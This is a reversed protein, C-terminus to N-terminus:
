QFTFIVDRELGGLFHSVEVKEDVQEGFRVAAVLDVLCGDVECLVNGEGGCLAAVFLACGVALREGFGDAVAAREHAHALPHVVDLLERLAGVRALDEGGGVAEDLVHADRRVETVDEAVIHLVQDLVLEDARRQGAEAEVVLAHHALRLQELEPAVEERDDQVNHLDALGDLGLLGNLIKVNRQHLVHRVKQHQQVRHPVGGPQPVLGVAAERRHASKGGTRNCCILVHLLQEWCGRSRLLILFSICLFGFFFRLAHIMDIKKKKSYIGRWGSLFLLFFAFLFYIIVDFVIILFFLINFTTKQAM